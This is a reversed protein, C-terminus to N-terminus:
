SKKRPYSCAIYSKNRIYMNIYLINVSVGSTKEKDIQLQQINSPIHLSNIVEGILSDIRDNKRDYIFLREPTQIWINGAADELVQSISNNYTGLPTTLYTKCHYGDYRNLGNITGFWMFGYRDRLISQVYNDSMGSKVDLTHFIYQDRGALGMLLFFLFLLHKMIITM